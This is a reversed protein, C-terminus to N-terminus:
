RVTFVVCLCFRPRSACCKCMMLFLCVGRRHEPGAGHVVVGGATPCSTRFQVLWMRKTTGAGGVVWWSLSLSLSLVVTVSQNPSIPPALKGGRFLRNRRGGREHWLVCARVCARWMCVCVRWACACACAVVSVYQPSCNAIDPHLPDSGPPSPLCCYSNTLNCAQLHGATSVSSSAGVLPNDDSSYVWCYRRRCGCRNPHNALWCARQLSHPAPRPM